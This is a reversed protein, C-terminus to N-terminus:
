RWGRQRETASLLTSPPPSAEGAVYDQLGALVPQSTAWGQLGPGWVSVGQVFADM